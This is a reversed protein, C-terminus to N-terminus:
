YNAKERRENGDSENGDSENGYEDNERM